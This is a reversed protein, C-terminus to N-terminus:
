VSRKILYLKGLAQYIRAKADFSGFHTKNNDTISDLDKLALEV